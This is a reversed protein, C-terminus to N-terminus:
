SPLTLLVVGTLLVAVGALRRQAIPRRPLHLLGHRDVAVSALQQGAVTLVVVPAAGVEPMLLFASTVYTAGCLGGLWGWWPVSPLGAVRPRPTGAAVVAALALAMAGTAVLFSIAGVPLAADLEANLQANVAGQVPLVAGAALALAIWGRRERAARELAGAGAQARVVLWAGVIVAAAGLLSPVGPPDREVGLWGFGDLLLSALMQGAVFLGVAVLAGLRPLVLIGATIYVASGLGGLLQWPEAREVGELAGLSGGVAALAVLLAAGIALQLTSAGVPSTMAAALQVNAAAQLALLTGVILLTPIALAELGIEKFSGSSGDVYSRAVM